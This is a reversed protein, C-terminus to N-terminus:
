LFNSLNWLNITNPFQSMKLTKTSIFDVGSSTKSRVRKIAKKVQFETVQGLGFKLNRDKLNEKLKSTPDINYIPIEKEINVVKSPFYHNFTEALDAESSIIVEKAESKRLFAKGCKDCSLPKEDSHTEEHELM